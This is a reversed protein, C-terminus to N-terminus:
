ILLILLLQRLLTCLFTCSIMSIQKPKNLLSNKKILPSLITYALTLPNESTYLVGCALAFTSSLPYCTKM